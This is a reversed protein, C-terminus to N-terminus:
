SSAKTPAGHMAGSAGQDPLVCDMLALAFNTAPIYSPLKKGGPEYAGEFLGNVLPHKYIQDVWAQDHLLEKIGRELDSARYKAFREIIENVASCILSLLLYVFVLGIAIDIVTSGFM